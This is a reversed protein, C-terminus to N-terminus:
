LQLRLDIVLTVNYGINIVFGSDALARRSGLFWSVNVSTNDYLHRESSHKIKSIVDTGLPNDFLLLAWWLESIRREKAPNKNCHMGTLQAIPFETSVSHIQGEAKQKTGPEPEPTDPLHIVLSLHHLTLAAKWMGPADFIGPIHGLKRSVVAIMLLYMQKVRLASIICM